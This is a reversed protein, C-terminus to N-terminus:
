TRDTPATPAAGPLGSPVWLDTAGGGSNAGLCGHATARQRRQTGDRLYDRLRWYPQGMVRMFAKLSLRTQYPRYLRALTEVTM